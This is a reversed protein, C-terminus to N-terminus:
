RRRRPARTREDAVAAEIDAFVEPVVADARLADVTRAVEPGGLARARLVLEALEDASGGEAVFGNKGQQVVTPVDGVRTSVVPVGSALAEVMARPFGELLSTMLLVNSARLSEALATPELIGVLEVRDELGSRSIARRLEPELTGAGAFWATFEISERALRELVDVAKLPDKPAEIRGVWGIRLGDREAEPRARFLGPDFWNQGPEVRESVERLRKAAVRSFVITQTARRAVLRELFLHTRPVFRWFTELQFRLAEASDTHLFQVLPRRPYLAELAVGVEARHAHLVAGDVRPHRRLLGGLLRATHPVRRRQDGPNLRAVPLFRISRDGVGIEEWRGLSSRGAADVGVVSFEHHAPAFRILDVIMGHIGGAVQVTPDFQHVILHHSPTM